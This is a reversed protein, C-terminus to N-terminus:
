ATTPAVSPIHDSGVVKISKWRASHEVKKCEQEKVSIEKTKKKRKASGKVTQRNTKSGRKSIIEIRGGLLDGREGGPERLPRNRSFYYPNSTLQSLGTTKKRTDQKRTKFGKGSERM